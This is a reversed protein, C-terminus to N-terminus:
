LDGSALRFRAGEHEPPLLVSSEGRLAATLEARLYRQFARRALVEAHCDHVRAGEHDQRIQAARLFKTGAGLAVVSFTPSDESASRRVCVVAAVVTQKYAIGAVASQQDFAEIACRAIRDAFRCTSTRDKEASRAERKPVVAVVTPEIRKHCPVGPTACEQPKVPEKALVAISAARRCRLVLLAAALAFAASTLLEIRMDGRHVM